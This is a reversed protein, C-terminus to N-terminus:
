TRLIRADPQEGSKVSRTAATFNKEFSDRTSDFAKEQLAEPWSIKGQHKALALNARTTGDTLNLGALQQETLPVYPGQTANPSRLISNLLVNLTRGSWIETNQAFNRAWELNARETEAALRPATPRMSEYEMEWALR